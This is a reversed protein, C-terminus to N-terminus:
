LVWVDDRMIPVAEGNPAIGDVDVEPGGIMADQHVDSLNFGLANRAERGPPLDPVTIEYANGWAVHSTANEDLLIDGFVAGSQGV